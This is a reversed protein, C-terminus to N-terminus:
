SYHAGHVSPPLLFTQGPWESSWLKWLAGEQEKTQLFEALAPSEEHVLAIVACKVRPALKGGKGSLAFLFVPKALKGASVFHMAQYGLYRRTCCYLLCTCRVTLTQRQGHGTSTCLKVALRMACIGRQQESPVPWLKDIAPRPGVALRCVITLQRAVAATQRSLPQSSSSASEIICSMTMGFTKGAISVSILPQVQLGLRQMLFEIIDPPSQEASELTFLM